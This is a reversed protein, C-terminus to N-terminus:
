DAIRLRGRNDQAALADIDRWVLALRPRGALLAGEELAHRIIAARGEVAAGLARAFAVAAVNVASIWVGTCSAGCFSLRRALASVLRAGIGRFRFGHRVYVGQIEADAHLLPDRALGGVCLGVVEGRYEAVLRAGGPAQSWAGRESEPTGAIQAPLLGCNMERWVNDHLRAMAPGDAVTASRVIVKAAGPAGIPDFMNELM